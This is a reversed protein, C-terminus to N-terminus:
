VLYQNAHAQQSTLFGAITYRIGSQMPTVGHLYKLNGPFIALTGTSLTPIMRFNPFYLQGGVYDQNLYVIMAYERYPFPHPSGDTQEADAHPPELKDGTRWRVLGFIDGYLYNPEQWYDYLEIKAQQYIDLVLTRIYDDM